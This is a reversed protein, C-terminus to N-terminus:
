YGGSFHFSVDFVVIGYTRKHQGSNITPIFEWICRVAFPCLVIKSNAYNFHTNENFVNEEAEFQNRVCGTCIRTRSCFIRDCKSQHNLNSPTSQIYIGVSCACWRYIYIYRGVLSYRFHNTNSCTPRRRPACGYDGGAIINIRPVVFTSRNSKKPSFEGTCDYMTCTRACLSVCLACVCHLLVACRCLWMRICVNGM